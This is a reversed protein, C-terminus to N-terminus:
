NRLAIARAFIALMNNLCLIGWGVFTLKKANYKKSQIVNANKRLAM